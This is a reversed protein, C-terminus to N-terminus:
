VGPWGDCSQETFFHFHALWLLCAPQINCAWTVQDNPFVRLRIIDAALMNDLQLKGPPGHVLFGLKQPYGQVAFKGKKENFNDVLTLLSQKEPHFFNAFSKEDSLKYRRHTMHDDEDKKTLMPLYLYRHM